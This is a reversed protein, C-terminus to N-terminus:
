FVMKFPVSTSLHLMHNFMVKWMELPLELNQSFEFDEVFLFFFVMIYNPCFNQYSFHHKVCDSKCVWMNVVYSWVVCKREIDFKSARIKLWKLINGFKKYHLDLNDNHILTLALSSTCTGIWRVKTWFVFDFM